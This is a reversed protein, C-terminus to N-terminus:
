TTGPARHPWGAEEVDHIPDALLLDSMDSFAEFCPESWAIPLLEQAPLDVEELLGESRLFALFRPVFEQAEPTGGLAEILAAPERPGSALADWLPAAAGRLSYYKGTEMQIAIVEGDLNQHTLKDPIIRLPM